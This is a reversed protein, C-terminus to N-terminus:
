WSLFTNFVSLMHQGLNPGHWSTVYLITVFMIRNRGILKPFFVIAASAAAAIARLQFWLCLGWPGIRFIPMVPGRSEMTFPYLVYEICPDYIHNHLSTTCWKMPVPSHQASDFQMTCWQGTNHVMACLPYRNKKLLLRWAWCKENKPPECLVHMFWVIKTRHCKKWTPHFRFYVYPAYPCSHMTNYKQPQCHFHLDLNVTCQVYFMFHKCAHFTWLNRSKRQNTFVWLCKDHM